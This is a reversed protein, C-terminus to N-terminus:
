SGPVHTMTRQGCPVGACIRSLSWHAFSMTCDKGNGGSRRDTMEQRPCSAPSGLAPSTSAWRARGAGQKRPKCGGPAAGRVAPRHRNPGRSRRPDARHSNEAQHFLSALETRRIYRGSAAREHAWSGQSASLLAALKLALMNHSVFLPRLNQRQGIISSITRM